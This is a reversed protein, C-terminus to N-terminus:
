PYLPFIAWLIGCLYEVNRDGVIIEISFIVVPERGITCANQTVAKRGQDIQVEVRIHEFM